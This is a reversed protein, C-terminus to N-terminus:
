GFCFLPLQIKNRYTSKIFTIKFQLTGSEIENKIMYNKVRKFDKGWQVIRTWPRSDFIGKLKLRTTVSFYGVLKSTIERIFRVYDDRSEMKLVSHCHTHNFILQYIKIGNKEAARVFLLRLKRDRPNFFSPLRGKLRLVLHTSKKFDLVRKSKRKRHILSGGCENKM